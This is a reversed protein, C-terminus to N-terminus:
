EALRIARRRWALVQLQRWSLVVGVGVGAALTFLEAHAFLLLVPLLLAVALSAYSSAVGQGQPMVASRAGFPPETPAPDRHSPAKRPRTGNLPRLSESFLWKIPFWALILVALTLPHLFLLIGGATTLGMGGRFRTYIPYCHGAVVLTAALAVAWGDGAWQRAASIALIGKAGDALFTLAAPAFGAARYTNIAGTHGSGTIRVDARRFARASIVGSPISGLLYSVIAVAAYGLGDM